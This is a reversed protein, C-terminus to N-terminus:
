DIEDLIDDLRESGPPYAHSGTDKNEEEEHDPEETNMLEDGTADEQEQDEDLRINVNKSSEEFEENQPIKFIGSEDESFNNLSKQTNELYSGLGSIIEDRKDLLRLISQRIEQRKQHAERVIADAEMEAKDLTSQAEVKATSIKQEASEKATQLTEHLAEEVREYHKVREKLSDIESELERNKTILHEWENSVLTLFAQVEAPDFGRLSKEFTQQKIDLPTLKM